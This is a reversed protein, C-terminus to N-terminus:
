NNYAKGKLIEPAVFLPAGLISGTVGQVQKAFGFDALKVEFENNFLDIQGLFNKLYELRSSM